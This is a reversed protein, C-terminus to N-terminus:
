HVCQLIRNRSTDSCLGPAAVNTCRVRSDRRKKFAYWLIREFVRAVVTVDVAPNNAKLQSDAVLRTTFNCRM